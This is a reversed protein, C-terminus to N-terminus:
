KLNLDKIAGPRARLSSLPHSPDKASIQNVQVTQDIFNFCKTFVRRLRHLVKSKIDNVLMEKCNFISQTFLLLDSYLVYVLKLELACSPTWAQDEALRLIAVLGNLTKEIDNVLSVVRQV